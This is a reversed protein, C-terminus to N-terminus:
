YESCYQRAGAVSTEPERGASGAFAKWKWQETVATGLLGGACLIDNAIDAMSIM